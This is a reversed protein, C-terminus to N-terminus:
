RRHASTSRGGDDLGTDCRTTGTNRGGSTGSAPDTVVNRCPMCVEPTLDPFGETTDFIEREILRDLMQHRMDEPLHQFSVGQVDWVASYHARLSELVTAKRDKLQRMRRVKRKALMQRVCNQVLIAPLDYDDSAMFEEDDMYAVAGDMAIFDSGGNEM